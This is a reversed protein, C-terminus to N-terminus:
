GNKLFVELEDISLKFNNDNEIQKIQVTQDIALTLLKYLRSYSPYQQLENLKLIDAESLTDYKIKILYRYIIDNIPIVPEKIRSITKRAIIENNNIEIADALFLLRALELVIGQNQELFGKEKLLNKVEQSVKFSEFLLAYADEYSEEKIVM